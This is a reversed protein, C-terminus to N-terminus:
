LLFKYYGQCPPNTCDRDETAHGVCTQNGASTGQSCARARFEKGPGCSTTCGSWPGWEQWQDAILDLYAIAIKAINVRVQVILHLAIKLRLLSAWVHEWAAVDEPGSKPDLAALQPASLGSM